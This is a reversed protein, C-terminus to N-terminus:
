SEYSPGCRINFRARYGFVDQQPRTKKTFPLPEDILNFLRKLKRRLEQMRKEVKAWQQSDGAIRMVGEAEALKRLTTWALVPKQNKESAFGMEAYNRTETQDGVTIQVRLDSLFRIELDEWQKPLPLGDRAALAAKSQPSRGNAAIGEAELVRLESNVM